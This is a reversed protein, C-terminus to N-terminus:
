KPSEVLMLDSEIDVQGTLIWRGDPSVSLGPGGFTPFRPLEVLERPAKEHPPLHMLVWKAETSPEKRRAAFYLGRPTAVLNGWGALMM